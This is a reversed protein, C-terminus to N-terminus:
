AAKGHRPVAEGVAVPEVVEDGAPCRDVPHRDLRPDALRGDHVEGVDARVRRDLRGVEVRAPLV